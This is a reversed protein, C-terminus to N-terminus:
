YSLNLNIKFCQIQSLDAARHSVKPRGQKLSFRDAIYLLVGHTKYKCTSSVLNKYVQDFNQSKQGLAGLLSPAGNCVSASQWVCGFCGLPRAWEM